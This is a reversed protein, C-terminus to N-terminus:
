GSRGARASRLRACREFLAARVRRRDVFGRLLREADAHSRELQHVDGAHRDRKMGRRREAPREPRHVLVPARRACTSDPLWQAIVPLSPSGPLELPRESRARRGRGAVTAAASTSSPTPVISSVSMPARTPRRHVVRVTRASSGRVSDTAGPDRRPMEGRSPVQRMGAIISM